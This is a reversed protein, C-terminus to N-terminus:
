INFLDPILWKQKTSIDNLISLRKTKLINNLTSDSIITMYYKSKKSGPLHNDINSIICKKRKCFIALTGRFFVKRYIRNYKLTEANWLFLKSGLIHWNTQANAIIKWKMQLFNSMVRIPSLGKLFCDIVFLLNVLLFVYLIINNLAM